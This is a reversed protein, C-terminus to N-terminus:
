FPKVVVLIVISVLLLTPMENFFRFFRGSKSNNDISFLKLYHGCFLHYIWLLLVLFLKAHMWGSKLYYTPSYSILWLGLITTALAAPWTIAYYLRREMVKFRELSIFDTTDAHYVFLRPLYFLGAFWAVLAIIHFSKVVLM